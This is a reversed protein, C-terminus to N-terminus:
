LTYVVIYLRVNVPQFAPYTDVGGGSNEGVTLYWKVGNPGTYDCIQVESDGPHNEVNEM